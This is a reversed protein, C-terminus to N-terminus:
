WGFMFHFQNTLPETIQEPIHSIIPTNQNTCVLLLVYRRFRHGYDNECFAVAHTEMEATVTEVGKNSCDRM